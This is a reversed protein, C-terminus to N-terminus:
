KVKFIYIHNRNIIITLRRQLAKSHDKSKSTKSLKQLLLNLMVQIAKFAINQLPSDNVWENMSRNVEAIYSKGVAGNPQM